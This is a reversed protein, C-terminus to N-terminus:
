KEGIRLRYGQRYGANEITIGSGVLRCRINHLAAKLAKYMQSPEPGGDPDDVYMADFIRSTQIARGKGKWVAALIREESPPIRYHQVVIDLDPVDVTQSCCPCNIPVFSELRPMKTPPIAPKRFSEKAAQHPKAGIKARPVYGFLDGHNAHTM